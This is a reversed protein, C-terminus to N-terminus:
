HTHIRTHTLTRTHTQTHTHKLTHTNTHTHTHTHTQTHPTHTHTHKHTDTRTPTHTHTSTYTHTQTRTHRHTNQLKHTNTHTRTLTHRHTHTHTHGCWLYKDRQGVNVFNPNNTICFASLKLKRRRVIAVHGVPASTMCSRYFHGRSKFFTAVHLSISSLNKQPCCYSYWCFIRNVQHSPRVCLQLTVFM